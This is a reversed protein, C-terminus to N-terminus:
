ACPHRRRISTAPGRSTNPTSRRCCSTPSCRRAPTPALSIRDLERGSKGLERLHALDGAVLVDVQTDIDDESHISISDLWEANFRADVQGRWRIKEPGYDHSHDITADADYVITYGAELIARGILVDEGMMTRPFPYREWLSRRIASAVDNFNCYLRKGLKSLADYEARDTIRTEVRETDYGPDTRTFVRTLLQSDERHVNRCYAAGVVPDEFNRALQALWREHSPIADQTLFVLLQGTSEAALSNRTDGHDFEDGAIRRLVLPVPFDAARKMLFEWTGDSSASDVVHMDWHFPVEQKALADFVRELFEMGNFTPLLVSASQIPPYEEPM